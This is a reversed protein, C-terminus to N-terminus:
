PHNKRLSFFRYAPKTDAKWFLRVLHFQGAREALMLATQGDPGKAELNAGHDILAKVFDGRGHQVALMLATMGDSAAANVNGGQALAENLLRGDGQQVALLLSASATERQRAESPPAPRSPVIVHAPCQPCDVMMGVASEDIVMSKGCDPCEFLIDSPTIAIEPITQDIHLTDM